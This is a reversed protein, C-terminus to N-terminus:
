GSKAIIKRMEEASFARLTRSRVNGLAAVKLLAATAAEDSGETIVVLDYEGITYYAGKMKVGMSEAMSEFSRLREPSDKVNRIGQDTFTLLSIFTAMTAEALLSSM